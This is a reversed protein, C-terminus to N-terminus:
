KLIREMRELATDVGRILLTVHRPLFLREKTKERGGDKDLGDGSYMTGFYYARQQLAKELAIPLGLTIRTLKITLRCRGIIDFYSLERFAHQLELLRTLEAHLAYICTRCAQSIINTALLLFLSTYDSLARERIAQLAGLVSNIGEEGLKISPNIDNVAALSSSILALITLVTTPCQSLLTKIVELDGDLFDNFIGLIVGRFTEEAHGM